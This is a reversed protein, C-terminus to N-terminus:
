KSIIELLLIYYLFCETLALVPTENPLTHTSTILCKSIFKTAHFAQHPCWNTEEDLKQNINNYFRRIWSIINISKKWDGTKDLISKIVDDEEDLSAFLVNMQPGTLHITKKMETSNLTNDEQTTENVNIRETQM